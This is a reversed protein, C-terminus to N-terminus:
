VIFSRSILYDLNARQGLDQGNEAGCLGHGGAPLAAGRHHKAQPTQVDLFAAHASRGRFSTRFTPFPKRLGSNVHGLRRGPPQRLRGFDQREQLGQRADLDLTDAPGGPAPREDGRSPALPLHQGATGGVAQRGSKCASVERSEVALAFPFALDPEEDARRVARLAFPGDRGQVEEVDQGGALVETAPFLWLHGRFAPFV